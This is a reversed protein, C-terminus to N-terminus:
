GARRKRTPDSNIPWRTIPLHAFSAETLAAELACIHAWQEGTEPKELELREIEEELDAADDSLRLGHCLSCVGAHLVNDEHLVRNPHECNACTGFIMEGERVEEEDGRSLCKAEMPLRMRSM